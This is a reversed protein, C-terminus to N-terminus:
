SRGQEAMVYFRIQMTFVPIPTPGLFDTSYYKLNINEEDADIIINGLAGYQFPLTGKLINSGNDFRYSAFVTPIYGVYGHPFSYILKTTDNAIATTDTWNLFIIGTHPPSAITDIKPSPYLNDVVIDQIRATEIDSGPLVIRVVQRNM